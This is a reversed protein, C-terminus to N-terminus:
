NSTNSFMEQLHKLVKNVKPKDTSEQTPDDLGNYEWGPQIQKKLPM